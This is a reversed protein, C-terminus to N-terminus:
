GNQDDEKDDDDDLPIGGIEVYSETQQGNADIEVLQLGGDDIAVSSDPSLTDLWLKVETVDMM